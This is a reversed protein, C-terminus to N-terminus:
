FVTKVIKRGGDILDKMQAQSPDSSKKHDCLNRLDGLHQVFRWTALDIVDSDKLSDNLKSITANKPTKIKHSSCVAALHGELVVGAIAGAGRQYGKRNLDDAADLENDFLDAQALTRIDFLSSEFRANLAEVIQLQQYFAGIAASPGVVIEKSFGRTITLGQLYDSVTYNEYSIDKRVHSPKYYSILDAKREPLLQVVAQLAESYWAQYRARFDPLDKKDEENLDKSQPHKSEVLMAVLLKKGRERLSDLDKRYRDLNTPM